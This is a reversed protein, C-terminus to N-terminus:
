AMGDLTSSTAPSITFLERLATVVPTDDLSPNDKALWPEALISRYLADNNDIEKVREVAAQMDKYDMVNVFSKTNFHKGIDPAGWYIPISPPRGETPDDSFALMPNIIKETIGGVSSNNEFCIVFKYDKYKEVASDYFNPSERDIPVSTNRRSKGLADVRKYKSLLDFFQCRNDVDHSYMFACFKKKTGTTKKPQSLIDKRAISREFFSTIYHPVYLQKGIGPTDPIPGERGDLRLDCPYYKRWAESNILLKKCTYKTTDSERTNVVSFVLLDIGKGPPVPNEVYTIFSVFERLLSHVYGKYWMGDNLLGVTLSDLKKSGFM